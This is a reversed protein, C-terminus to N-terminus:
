LQLCCVEGDSSGAIIAPHGSYGTLNTEQLRCELVPSDLENFTAVRSDRSRIDFLKVSGDGFGATFIGSAASSAAYYNSCRLSSVYSDSGTNLDAKKLEREADWLRIHRAYGGVALTLDFQSWATHVPLGSAVPMLALSAAGRNWAKFAFCDIGSLCITYLLTTSYILVQNGAAIDRLGNWASVLKHTTMVWEEDEDEQDKFLRLSGDDSAVLLLADEHANLYDMSTVQATRFNSIRNLRAWDSTFPKMVPSSLLEGKGVDWM